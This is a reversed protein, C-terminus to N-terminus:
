LIIIKVLLLFLLNLCCLTGTLEKVNEDKLAYIKISNTLM